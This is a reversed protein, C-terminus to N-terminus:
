GPLQQATTNKLCTLYSGWLRWQELPDPFGYFLRPGEEEWDTYLYIEICLM